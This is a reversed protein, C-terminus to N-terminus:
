STEASSNFIGSTDGSTEAVRWTTRTAAGCAARDAVSLAEDQWRPSLADGVRFPLTSRTIRWTGDDIVGQSIECDLLQRAYLLSTAAAVVDPLSPGPPLPAARGRAYIFSAGVRVLCGPAAGEPARLVVGAAPTVSAAPDRHWHELYPTDRGEEVLVDGQWYLRGIDKFAGPPCYDLARVWEFGDDLQRFVGAFGQQMALWRCDAMTLDDLGAAHSFDPMGPPQRLDAYFPDAQLWTVDTTTDRAGDATVLLSRRWQGALKAVTMMTGIHGLFVNFDMMM